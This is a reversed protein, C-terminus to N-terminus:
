RIRKCVFVCDTFTDAIKRRVLYRDFLFLAKNINLWKPWFKYLRGMYVLRYFPGYGKENLIKFIQVKLGVKSLIAMYDDLTRVKKHFGWEEEVVYTRRAVQEFFVFCEAMSIKECYRSLMACLNEDSAFGSLVWMTFVKKTNTDHAFFAEPNTFFSVNEIRMQRQRAEANEIQKEAVDIGYGHGIYPALAFLNRGSGCGIELVDVRNKDVVFKKIYYRSWHDIYDCKLGKQDRPDITSQLYEKKAWANFIRVQHSEEESYKCMLIKEKLLTQRCFGLVNDVQKNEYRPAQM